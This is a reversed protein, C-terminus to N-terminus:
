NKSCKNFIGRETIILDTKIDFEGHPLSDCILESYVVGLSVGSFSALFRDYYGGGYGLRYGKRDFTFAPVICLTNTESLDYEPNEQPPEPISYSGSKLEDLSSVFRFTMTHSEKDCIPFAVKKGLQLAKIAVPAVNPELFSPSFTLITGSAKFCELETLLRCVASDFEARKEAQIQKRKEKYFARLLKKEEKIDPM